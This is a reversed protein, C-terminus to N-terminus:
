MNKSGPFENGRDETPIGAKISQTMKARSIGAHQTLKEAASFMRSLCRNM